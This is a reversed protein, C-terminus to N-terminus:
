SAHQWSCQGEQWHELDTESQCIECDSDDAPSVAQTRLEPGQHVGDAGSLFGLATLMTCVYENRVMFRATVWTHETPKSGRLYDKIDGILDCREGLSATRSPDIEGNGIFDGLRELLPLVRTLLAEVDDRTEAGVTNTDM